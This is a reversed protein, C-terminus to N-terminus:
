VLCGKPVCPQPWPWACLECLRHLLTLISTPGSLGREASTRGEGRHMAQAGWAAWSTATRNVAANGKM